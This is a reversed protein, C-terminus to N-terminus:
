GGGNLFWVTEPSLFDGVVINRYYVRKDEINKYGM